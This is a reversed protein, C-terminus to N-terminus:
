LLAELAVVQDGELLDPVAHELSFGSELLIYVPFLDEVSNHDVM